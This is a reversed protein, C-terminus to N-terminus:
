RAQETSQTPLGLDEPALPVSLSEFLVVGGPLISRAYHIGRKACAAEFVPIEPDDEAFLWSPHAVRRAAQQTEPFGVYGNYDGVPIQDGDLYQVTRALWFTAWIAQPHHAQVAAVAADLHVTRNFTWAGDARDLASTLGCTALVVAAGSVAVARRPIAELVIAAALVLPVAFPLLYRPECSLSNFWRATVAVMAVPAIALVMEVPELRTLQGRLVPQLRDRRLWLAGAFILIVAGDTVVPSVVAQGCWVERTGVFIPLAAAFVERLAREPAISYTAFPGYLHRLSGLRSELNYVIAPAFGVIAAGAATLGGEVTPRWGLAPARMLIAAVVPLLPVLLLPHNWTGLGVALGLLLWDRRKPLTAPWAVRIVLALCLAEFLLLGAYNRAREAFTLAFLPFVAAIAALLLAGRHTRFLGRGLLYTALVYGAGLVGIGVRLAMLTPGLVAVFPVLFYSEFAGLYHANSEMLPLHGHLIHLATIGQVAEDPDLGEQLGLLVRIVFGVTVV